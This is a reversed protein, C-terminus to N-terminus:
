QGSSHALTWAGFFGTIMFSRVRPWLQGIETLVREFFLEQGFFKQFAVGGQGLLFFDLDFLEVYIVGKEFSPIEISWLNGDICPGVFATHFYLLVSGYASLARILQDWLVHLFVKVVLLLWLRSGGSTGYVSSIVLDILHLEPSNIYIRWM